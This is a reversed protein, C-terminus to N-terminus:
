LDEKIQKQLIGAHGTSELCDHAPFTKEIAKMKDGDYKKINDTYAKAADRVAKTEDSQKSLRSEIYDSPLDETSVLGKLKMIRERQQSNYYTAGLGKDYFGNVGYKGTCDGWRLPTHAPATVMKRLDNGCISCVMPPHNM